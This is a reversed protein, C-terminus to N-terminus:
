NNVCTPNDYKYGFTDVTVSEIIIDTLPRDQFNTDTTAIADLTEFGTLVKGFAAYSGDLHPSTKHMIFFQSTASDKVTTRAMSIVGREHLIDNQIGNSSFEGQIACATQNGAGGQIMFNEIVRHFISGEYYGQNALYIFNRVTNPAKDYYLELVMPTEFGKVKITVQPHTYEMPQEEKGCSWLPIMILLLIIIYFKKM